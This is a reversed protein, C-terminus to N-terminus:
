VTRAIASVVRINIVTKIRPTPHIIFLTHIIRARTRLTFNVLLKLQENCRLQLRLLLAIRNTIPRRLSRLLNKEATIHIRASAPSQECLLNARLEESAHMLIILTPHPGDCVCANKCENECSHEMILPDRSSDDRM